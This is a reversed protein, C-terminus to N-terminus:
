GELVKRYAEITLRATQEWTFTEAIQLGRQASKDRWDSDHYAQVLAEAWIDIEHPPLTKGTDQAVEPLSSVNSTIVATGCAMAELVPLGFGEFVSPYVFCEASNYWLAIEDTPVFGTTLIADSLGHKEIAEFIPENM